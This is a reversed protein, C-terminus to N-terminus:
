NVHIDMSYGYHGNMNETWACHKRKLFGLDWIDDGICSESLRSSPKIEKPIALRSVLNRMYLNTKFMSELKHKFKPAVKLNHLNGLIRATIESIIHIYPNVFFSTSTTKTNADQKRNESTLHKLWHPTLWEKQVYSYSSKMTEDPVIKLGLGNTFSITIANTVSHILHPHQITKM